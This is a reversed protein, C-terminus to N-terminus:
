IAINSENGSTQQNEMFEIFPALREMVATRHQEPVQYHDGQMIMAIAHQIDEETTEPVIETVEDTFCVVAETDSDIARQLAAETQELMEDFEVEDSVGPSSFGAVFNVRLKEKGTDFVLKNISERVRAIVTETNARNTMPLILAYRAVGIRAAIDEERMVDKLRKGVAIIIHQAINKGYNLFCEQFGEVEFYVSSIYLKHRRAFSFAKSGQEQLSNVNYLGTLKDFGTKKELEVVKRSLKAYSKARSILDISEFPKAIFDTAGKDFVAQKTSETDDAGTMIIVPLNVIHDNDSGRINMLLEMGNMNPMSLDTFIVSIQENQQLLEWAVQGDEALHIEYNESLMKRAALRIVKSDDVILIQPKEAPSESM